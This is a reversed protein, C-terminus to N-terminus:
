AVTASLISREAPARHATPLYLRGTLGSAMCHVSLDPDVRYLHGVPEKMGKHM